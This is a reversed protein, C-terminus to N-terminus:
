VSFSTKLKGGIVSRYFELSAEIRLFGLKHQNRPDCGPMLRIRSGVGVTWWQSSPDDMGHRTGILDTSRDYKVTCYPDTFRGAQVPWTGVAEYEAQVLHVGPATEVDLYTGTVVYRGMDVDDYGHGVVPVNYERQHNVRTTALSGRFFASGIGDASHENVARGFLTAIFMAQLAEPKHRVLVLFAPDAAQPKPRGGGMVPLEAYHALSVLWTPADERTGTMCALAMLRAPRFTHEIGLGARHRLESGGSRNLYKEWSFGGLMIWNTDPLALGQTADVHQRQSDSAREFGFGINARKGERSPYLGLAWTDNIPNVPGPGMTLAPQLRAFSGAFKLRYTGQNTWGANLQEEPLELGRGVSVHNEDNEYELAAIVGHTMADEAYFGFTGARITGVRDAGVFRDFARYSNVLRYDLEGGSANGIGGLVFMASLFFWVPMRM